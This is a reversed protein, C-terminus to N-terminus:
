TPPSHDQPRHACRPFAPEPGPWDTPLDFVEVASHAADERQVRDTVIRATSFPLEADLPYTPDYHHWLVPWTSAVTNPMISVGMLVASIRRGSAGRRGIWVGDANRVITSEGSAIALRVSESGFLANTVERDGVFGNTALVAVVLPKDPTGYRKGKRVIANRIQPTDNTVGGVVPGLGIFPNGPCGHLKSGWAHPRLSFEWDGVTFSRWGDNHRAAAEAAAVQEPDLTALWANVQEVIERRKPMKEGIRDWQLAVFFTSADIMSLIDEISAKLRGGRTPSVVIGSFVTAAEVYYSEGTREVLFDPHGATGPVVPHVTVEYGLARFLAHIYLEWWAAFHQQPSRSRLRRRLDGDSDPFDAYWRELLGRQRKWVIGSVRNLFSFTDESPRKPSTDSHEIADFISRM